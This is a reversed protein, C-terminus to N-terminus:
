TGGSRGFHVICLSYQGRRPELRRVRGRSVVNRPGTQVQSGSATGGEVPAEAPPCVSPERSPPFFARSRERTIGYGYLVGVLTRSTGEEENKRKEPLRARGVTDKAV